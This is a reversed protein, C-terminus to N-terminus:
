SAPSCLDTAFGRVEYDVDFRLIHAKEQANPAGHGAIVEVKVVIDVSRILFASVEGAHFRCTFQGDRKHSVHRRHAHFFVPVDVPAVPDIDLIAAASDEKGNAEALGHLYKALGHTQLSRIRWTKVENAPGAFPAAM